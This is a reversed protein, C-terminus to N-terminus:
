ILLRCVRLYIGRASPLDFPATSRSSASPAPLAFLEVPGYSLDRLTTEVDGTSSPTFAALIVIGALSYERCCGACPPSAISPGNASKGKKEAAATCCFSLKPTPQGVCCASSASSNLCVHGQSVLEGAKSCFHLDRAPVPHALILAAILVVAIAREGAAFFFRSASVGKMGPNYGGKVLNRLYRGFELPFIWDGGAFNSRGSSFRPKDSSFDVISDL